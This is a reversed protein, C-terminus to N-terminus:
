QEQGPEFVTRFEEYARYNAFGRTVNEYLDYYPPLYKDVDFKKGDLLSASLFHYRNVEKRLEAIIEILEESYDYLAKVLEQRAENEAREIEEDDYMSDMNDM